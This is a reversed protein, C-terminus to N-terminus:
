LFFFNSGSLDFTVAKCELDELCAEWCKETTERLLHKYYYDFFRTKPLRQSFPKKYTISNWGEEISSTPLENTFFFYDM